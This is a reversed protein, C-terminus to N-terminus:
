QTRLPFRLLYRSTAALSNISVALVPFADAWFASTGSGFWFAGFSTVTLGPNAACDPRFAVQSALVGTGLPLVLLSSTSVATVLFRWSAACDPSVGTSPALMNLPAKPPPDAM